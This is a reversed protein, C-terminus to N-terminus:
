SSATFVTSDWASSSQAWQAYDWDTDAVSEGPPMELACAEAGQGGTGDEGEGAKGAERIAVEVEVVVAVGGTGGPAKRLGLAFRRVGGAEEGGKQPRLV